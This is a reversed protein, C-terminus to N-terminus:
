HASDREGIEKGKGSGRSYWNTLNATKTLSLPYRPFKTIEKFNNWSETHNYKTMDNVNKTLRMHKTSLSNIM